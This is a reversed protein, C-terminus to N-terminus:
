KKRRYELPPVRYCKKFARFFPPMQRFGSLEAIETLTLETNLLLDAAHELRLNRLYTMPPMGLAARFHRQLTAPSMAALRCLDKMTLARQFNQQMCATLKFVDLPPSTAEEPIWWVECLRGLIAVFIGMKCCRSDSKALYDLLTELEAFVKEDLHTMPFNENEDPAFKKLFVQKYVASSYLELLVSPLRPAYFLLNFIILDHVETYAHHGGIPIFLVDGRRVPVPPNKGSQHMGSGSIVFVCESFEHEHSRTVEQPALKNVRLPFVPDKRFIWEATKYSGLNTM